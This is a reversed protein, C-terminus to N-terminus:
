ETGLYSDTHVDLGPHVNVERPFELQAVPTPDALLHKYEVEFRHCDPCMGTKRLPREQAAPIM